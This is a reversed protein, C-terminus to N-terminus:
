TSGKQLLPQACNQPDVGDFEVVNVISDLALDIVPYEVGRPFRDGRDASIVTRLMPWLTVAYGLPPITPDANNIGACVLGCVNSEEDVVLGGSMGHAFQAHVEYCPFTLMSSDRREAFAQGVKGISTTGVDNLMIHHTGDPGEDVQIRSQRYGFAIVRHGTPPPTVRLRPVRWVVKAAPESSQYLNLHLIAIDSDCPWAELVNWIRYVPGTKLPLCQYLRLAFGDVDVGDVKGFGMAANLVHKATIALNGAILTATGLVHLHWGPLEAVVRLAIEQIPDTPSANHFAPILPLKHRM